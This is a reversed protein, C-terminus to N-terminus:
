FFNVNNLRLVPFINLTLGTIRKREWLAKKQLIIAFAFDKLINSKNLNELCLSFHGSNFNNWAKEMVSEDQVDIIDAVETTWEDCHKKEEKKSIVMIFTLPVYVNENEKHVEIKDIM